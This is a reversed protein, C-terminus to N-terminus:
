KIQKLEKKFTTKIIHQYAKGINKKGREWESIRNKVTGIKEAFATQTLGLYTRLAKLKEPTM